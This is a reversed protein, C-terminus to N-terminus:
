KAPSALERKPAREKPGWRFAYEFGVRECAWNFVMPLAVGAIMGGVLLIWMNNVHLVKTFAVRSGVGGIGSMLYIQLSQRGIAALGNSLLAAPSRAGPRAARGILLSLCLVAITGPISWELRYPPAGTLQYPIQATMVGWGAICALALVWGPPSQTALTPSLLRDALLVGAMLWGMYWVLHAVLPPWSPGLYQAAVTGIMAAVCIWVRPVGATRLGGYLLSFLFLTMLFWFENLPDYLIHWPIRYDPKSNAYNQAVILLRWYILSWLVRPYYLSKAKEIAFAPFGVRLSRELFLGALLVFAPMHFAYIWQYIYTWVQSKSLLGATDLGGILHGLVVFLILVGKAVDVWSSRPATRPVAQPALAAESSPSQPSTAPNM